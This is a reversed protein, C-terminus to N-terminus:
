KLGNQRKNVRAPVQKHYGCKVGEALMLVGEKNLKLSINGFGVESLADKLQVPSFYTNAHGHNSTQPVGGVWDIVYLEGGPKLVRHSERMATQPNPIEHLAKLSVACDFTNNAFTLEEASQVLFTVSTTKLRAKEVNKQVPDVGIVECGTAEKLHLALKGSGCGIDLIKLATGPKRMEKEANLRKCVETVLEVENALLDM